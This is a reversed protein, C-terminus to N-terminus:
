QRWRAGIRLDDATWTGNPQNSDFNIHDWDYTTIFADYYKM